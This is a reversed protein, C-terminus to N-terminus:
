VALKAGKTRNCRWCLTQLNDPTSLGGRSVPTIHDVELLLHPEDAVSINCNKCAHGDRDKIFQRFKATMLARQGAASKRFKIKESMREILADVTEGNLTVETKQSSNGGPSVYEFVYEPYPVEIPLVQAGLEELFREGYHKQIFRPPNISRTIAAERCRVNAVAGELSAISGGLAEVRKLMEDDASIGFYKMVYKLPDQSANRVLQLSGAAHVNAAPASPVYRDRRYNHKSTNVFSALHAQSGASSAGLEFLGRQRVEEAYRAVENREAVVAAVGEKYRGFEEGGFYRRMRVWRVLPPLWRVAVWLVVVSVVATVTFRVVAGVVSQLQPSDLLARGVFGVGLVAVLVLGVASEAGSSKKRGM